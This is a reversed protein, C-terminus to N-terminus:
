RAIAPKSLTVDGVPTGCGLREALMLNFRSLKLAPKTRSNLAYQYTGAPKATKTKARKIM